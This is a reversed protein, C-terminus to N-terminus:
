LGLRSCCAGPEGGLLDFKVFVFPAGLRTSPTYAGLRRKGRERESGRERGRVVAPVPVRPRGRWRAGPGTVDNAGVAGM